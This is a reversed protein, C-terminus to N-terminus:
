ENPDAYEVILEWGADFPSEPQFGPKFDKILPLEDLDGADWGDLEDEDADELGFFALAHPDRDAVLDNLEDIDMEAEGLCEMAYEDEMDILNAEEEEKIEDYVRELAAKDCLDVAYTRFDKGTIAKIREIAVPSSNSYNDAIVIDYGAELFEVATHSGIYGAGGTILISM